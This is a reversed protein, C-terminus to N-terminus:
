LDGGGKDAGLTPMTGIGIVAQLTKRWQLREKEEGYEPLLVKGRDL